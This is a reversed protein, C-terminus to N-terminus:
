LYELLFFYFLLLIVFHTKKVFTIKNFINYIHKTNFNVKYIKIASRLYLTFFESCKKKFFNNFNSLKVKLEGRFTTNQCQVVCLQKLLCLLVYLVNNNLLIIIHYLLLMRLLM